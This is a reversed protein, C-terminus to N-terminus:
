FNVLNDTISTFQCILAAVTLALGLPLYAVNRAVERRGFADALFVVLALLALILALVDM